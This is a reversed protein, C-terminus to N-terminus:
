WSRTPVNLALGPSKNKKLRHM